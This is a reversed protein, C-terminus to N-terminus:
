PRHEPPSERPARLNSGPAPNWPSVGDAADALPHEDCRTHMVAVDYFEVSSRALTGSRV